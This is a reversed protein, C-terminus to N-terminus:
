QVKFQYFLLDFVQKTEPNSGGYCVSVKTTSKHCRNQLYSDSTNVVTFIADDRSMTKQPRMIIARHTKIKSELTPPLVTFLYDERIIWGAPLSFRQATKLQKQNGVYLSKWAIRENYAALDAGTLNDANEPLPSVEPIVIPSVPARIATNRIYVYLFVGVCVILLSGRVIIKKHKSQM